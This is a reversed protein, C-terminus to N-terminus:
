VHGLTFISLLPSSIDLEKMNIETPFTHSFNKDVHDNNYTDSLCIKILWMLKM